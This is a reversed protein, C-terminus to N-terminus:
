LSPILVLGRAAKTTANSQAVQAVVWSVFAQSLHRASPWVPLHTLDCGQRTKGSSTQYDAMDAARGVCLRKEWAWKEQSAFTAPAPVQCDDVPANAVAATIPPEAASCSHHPSLRCLLLLQAIVLAVVRM